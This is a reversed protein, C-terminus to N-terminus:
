WEEATMREYECVAEAPTDHGNTCWCNCACQCSYNITGDTRKNTTLIVPLDECCGNKMFLIKEVHYVEPIWIRDGYIQKLDELTKPRIKPINKM